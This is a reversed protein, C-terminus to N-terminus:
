GRKGVPYENIFFDKDFDEKKPAFDTSIPLLAPIVLAKWDVGAPRSANEPDEDVCSGAGFGRGFNLAERGSPHAARSSSSFPHSKGLGTSNQTASLSQRRPQLELHFHYSCYAFTIGAFRMQFDIDSNGAAVPNQSRTFM